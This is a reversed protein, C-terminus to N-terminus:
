RRLLLTQMGYISVPRRGGDHRFPNFGALYLANMLTRVLPRVIRRNYRYLEWSLLPHSLVIREPANFVSSCLAAFEGPYWEQVHNHDLPAETLRVPTSVVLAGGKRLLRHIERLLGDPDSVHEIVDACLALDFTGDGFPYDTGGARVFGAYVGRASFQERAFVIGYPDADLGVAECASSRVAEYLLAGDGCGADLLRSGSGLGAESLLELAVDYRTRLQASMSFLDRKALSWHYAGKERYKLFAPDGSNREGDTM